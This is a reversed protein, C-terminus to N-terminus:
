SYRQVHEASNSGFTNFEGKKEGGESRSKESISDDIESLNSVNELLVAVVAPPIRGLVCPPCDLALVFNGHVISEVFGQYM